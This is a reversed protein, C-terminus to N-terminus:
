RMGRWSYNCGLAPRIESLVMSSRISPLKVLAFQESLHLEDFAHAGTAIMISASPERRALEEALLLTM